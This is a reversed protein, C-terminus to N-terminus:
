QNMFLKVVEILIDIQRQSLLCNSNLIERLEDISSSELDKLYKEEDESFMSKCFHKAKDIEPKVDQLDNYRFTICMNNNAKESIEIGSLQDSSLSININLEM